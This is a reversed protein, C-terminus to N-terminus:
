TSQGNRKKRRNNEIAPIILMVIVAAFAVGCFDLLMDSVQCSRGAPFLQIIEDIVAV